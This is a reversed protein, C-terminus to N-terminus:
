SELNELNKFEEIANEYLYREWMMVIDVHFPIERFTLYKQKKVSIPLKRAIENIQFKDALIIAIVTLITNKRAPELYGNKAKSEKPEIQKLIKHLRGILRKPHLRCKRKL